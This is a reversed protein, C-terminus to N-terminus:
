QKLCEIEDASLGTLKGIADNLQGLAILNKAIDIQAQKRGEKRGDKLGDNRAADYIGKADSVSM